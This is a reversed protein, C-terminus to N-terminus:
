AGGLFLFAGDRGSWAPGIRRPHQKIKINRRTHWTPCADQGDLCAPFGAGRIHFSYISQFPDEVGLIKRDL